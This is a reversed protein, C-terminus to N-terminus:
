DSESSAGQCAISPKKHDNSIDAALLGFEVRANDSRIGVPGDFGLAEGGLGGQWVVAGDVSVRLQQGSIEARLLRKDNPRLKPAAGGHISKINRYGENGCQASTHKGPNSKVSVVIRSEPEIRWMVYVVNCADQAKLKLGFQRRSAGSALRSEEATPGLYTIEAAVTQATWQTLYARMKPVNVSLRQGSLEGIAGETVCLMNRGVRHLRLEVGSLLLTYLM